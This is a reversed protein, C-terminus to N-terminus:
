ITYYGHMFIHMFTGHYNSIINCLPAGLYIIHSLSYKYLSTTFIPSFSFLAFNELCLFLNGYKKIILTIVRYNDDIIRILLIYLQIICVYSFVFVSRFIHSERFSLWFKNHNCCWLYPIPLFFGPKYICFMTDLDM